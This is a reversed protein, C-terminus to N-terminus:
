TTGALGWVLLKFLYYLTLVCLGILAAGVLWMGLIALWVILGGIMPAPQELIRWFLKTNRSAPQTTNTDTETQVPPKEIVPVKKKVPVNM